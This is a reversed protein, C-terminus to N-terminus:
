VEQLRSTSFERKNETNPCTASIMEWRLLAASVAAFARANAQSCELRIQDRRLLPLVKLSIQSTKFSAPM